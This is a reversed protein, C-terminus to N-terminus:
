PGRRRTRKIPKGMFNMKIPIKLIKKYADILSASNALYFNYETRAEIQKIYEKLRDYERQVSRQLRKTLSSSMLTKEMDKLQIHYSHLRSHEDFFKKCIIANISLIDPESM